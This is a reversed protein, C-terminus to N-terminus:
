DLAINCPNLQSQGAASGSARGPRVSDKVRPLLQLSLAWSGILSIALLARMQTPKCAVYAEPKTPIVWCFSNRTVPSSLTQSQRETEAVRHIYRTQQGHKLQSLAAAWGRAAPSATPFLQSKLFPTQTEPRKRAAHRPIAQGCSTKSASPLHQQGKSMRKSWKLGINRSFLTAELVFPNRHHQSLKARNQGSQKLRSGDASKVIGNRNFHKCRCMLSTFM